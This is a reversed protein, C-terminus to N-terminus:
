VRARRGTEVYGLEALMPGAAQEVADVEAPSLCDRWRGVRSTSPPKAVGGLLLRRRDAALVSGDARSVDRLEQLRDSAREHARLMAPTFDLRLYDCLERLVAEPDGVLREYRVERYHELGGALRRTQAIQDRWLAAVAGASRDRPAFHLGRMSVAVDRGDRLIHVFRAEPLLRSLVDMHLCNGPTKDGWRPKGHRRAYARFIARLGGGLSWPRVESVIEGLEAHSIGLDPWTALSTLAQQFDAPGAGETELQRAKWGFWTEPPVALAPHADLLMRLLTTGSRGVGVIFPAPPCAAMAVIIVAHGERGRTGEDGTDPDLPGATLM